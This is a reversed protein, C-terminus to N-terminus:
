PRNPDSVTVGDYRLARGPSTMSEWTPLPDSLDNCSDYLERAEGIHNEASRFRSRTAEYIDETDVIIGHESILDAVWQYNPEEKYFAINVVLLYVLVDLAPNKIPAGRRARKKKASMFSFGKRSMTVYARIEESVRVAEGEFLYELKVLQSLGKLIKRYQDHAPPPMSSRSTSRWTDGIKIWDLGQRDFYFGKTKGMEPYDREVERKLVEYVKFCAEVRERLPGESVKTKM